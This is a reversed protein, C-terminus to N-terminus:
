KQAVLWKDLQEQKTDMVKQLGAAYLKDNFSKLTGEVDSVSGTELPKKFETEVSALATLETAVSSSDYFFGFAKSYTASANFDQYQQWIDEPQGNWVYGKFQNPLMWGMNLHYATSADTGAPYDILVESGEVKAYDEGEIGFNMLNNWEPSTYAYNLFEMAKAKDQSQQAIGWNFYNVNGSCIINSTSGDDKGIYATVMEQGCSVNEQVLFGPKISSLYSFLTGAKVLNQSTETTTAADLKVYGAKYWESVRSIRTKYEDTEYLNVVKTDQGDNLLVGFIDSLPDWTQIQSVLNTGSIADLEPHAAKVKEFIPTLDDYTKISAVDIQLEDVIDKRMVIGALSASEKNSPIGYIFGNVSGSKAVNADMVTLIDKGYEDIYDALNVIQGANIYSNALTFLVPVIDLKDGGSLMLNLKNQYDGFGLQVTEFNMGTDKKVQEAVAALVKEQNPQENGIYAMTVTYEDGSGTTSTGASAASATSATKGSTAATSGTNGNGCGAFASVLMSAALLLSLTKATKKM